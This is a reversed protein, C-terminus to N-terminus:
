IIMDIIAKGAVGGVHIGGFYISKVLAMQHINGTRKLMYNVLPTGKTKSCNQRVKSLYIIEDATDKVWIDSTVQLFQFLHIGNINFRYASYKLEIAHM